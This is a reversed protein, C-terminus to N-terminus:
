KSRRGFAAKSESISLAADEHAKAQITKNEKFSGIMRQYAVLNEDLSDEAMGTEEQNVNSDDIKIEEAM